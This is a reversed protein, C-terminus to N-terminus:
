GKGQTNVLLSVGEGKYPSDALLGGGGRKYVIVLLSAGRERTREEGGRRLGPGVQAQFYLPNEARHASASVHHGCQQLDTFANVLVKHVLELAGRWGRARVAKFYTTPRTRAHCLLCFLLALGRVPSTRARKTEGRVHQAEYKTGFLYANTHPVLVLCVGCRQPSLCWSSSSSTMWIMVLYRVLANSTPCYLLDGQVFFLGFCFLVRRQDACPPSDALLLSATGLARRSVRTCPLPDM